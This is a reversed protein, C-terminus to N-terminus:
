ILGNTEKVIFLMRVFSTRAFFVPNKVKQKCPRVVLFSSFISVTYNRLNRLNRVVTSLLKRQWAM